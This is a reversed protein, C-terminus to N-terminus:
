GVPLSQFLLADFLCRMLFILGREVQSLALTLADIVDFGNLTEMGPREGARSASCPNARNMIYCSSSLSDGYLGTLLSASTPAPRLDAIARM